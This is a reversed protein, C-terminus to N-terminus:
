ASESICREMENAIHFAYQPPISESLVRQGIVEAPDYGMGAKSIPLNSVNGQCDFRKGLEAPRGMKVSEQKHPYHVPQTLNMNSEFLRHRYVRLGYFSAGCLTVPNKLHSRAGEVNEIVYPKGLDTLAERVPEILSDYGNGAFGKAASYNQCPPSAWVWDAWSGWTELAQEWGLVEASCLSNEVVWEWPQRVPANKGGQPTDGHPDRGIPNKSLYKPEIDTAVVVNGAAVLGRSAGGACAFLELVNM